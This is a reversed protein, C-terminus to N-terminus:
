AREGKRDCSCPNRQCVGGGCDIRESARKWDNGAGAIVPLIPWYVGILLGLGVILVRDFWAGPWSRKLMFLIATIAIIAAILVYSPGIVYLLALSLLSAGVFLGAHFAYRTV